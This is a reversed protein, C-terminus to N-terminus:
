ILRVVGQPRTVVDLLLKFNETSSGRPGVAENAAEKLSKIKDRMKKRREQCLVLDLCRELGARTFAGGEVKVGIEWVDQVMRGNLRQDGFFPRCIMPVGGVISELVSNWGCHTVFVGVARHALIDIQPAWPVVMGTKRTKELFGIPLNEKANERLSWIFPIGGGELAAAIEELEERPPVMVSGFSIYAVSADAKQEDLWRLCGSEDPTPPLSPSVVNLPGVNLFKNFKSKLDHTITKDLEEFSNIFVAKARPLLLGMKHLMNSFVSELKGFLVGEPLDQVLVKSMGPIFSLPENESGKAAISIRQRILDTYFHASLSCPGATWFQVWSAVRMDQALEGGFWFFADTLLCSVERGTEVVAMEINFRLSEPAAKVFLEVREQPKGSFVHGEPVGDWIDYATINPFQTATDKNFISNNSQRTNFFSFTTGPSAAALRRVIALLPAAHTGFPFAAVAVHCPPSPAM